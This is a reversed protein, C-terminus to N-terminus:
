GQLRQLYAARRREGMALIDHEHWGYAQALVHVDDLLRQALSDIEDWCIAAVDLEADFDQSCAPCTVQLSPDAWPDERDLVRDVRDLLEDLAATERPLTDPAEACAGLLSRAATGPDGAGLLRALDRSSPRRFRQGAVDIPPADSGPPPPLLDADIVLEMREACAPCDVWAATPNGFRARRLAMIAANRRSLPEDALREAPIEPAALGFLLLARDIPHRRVGQEWLELLRSPSLDDV